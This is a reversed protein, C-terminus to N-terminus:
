FKNFGRELNLSIVRLLWCPQEFFLCIKGHFWCKRCFFLTNLVSFIIRQPNYKNVYSLWESLSPMLDKVFLHHLNINWMCTSRKCHLFVRALTGWPHGWCSIGWPNLHYFFFNILANQLHFPGIACMIIKNIIWIKKNEFRRSTLSRLPNPVNKQQM